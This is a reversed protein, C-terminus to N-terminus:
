NRLKQLEMEYLPLEAKRNEPVNEIALQWYMIAKKRDALATYARALGVNPTFKDGPHTKANYQFVEIAKEKKGGALLIRGYQHIALVPTGPIRIARDMIKEAEDYRALTYLVVAKANLTQFDEVGGIAPDMAKNAWQLAEDLNVKYQANIQAALSWNRYDHGAQSRLENRIRAVYIDGVNAEIKFPIRKEEWQLYAVTSSSLRSDFGYTLWETYPAEQPSVEVRLADEAENYSFSGWSTFNKSFIWIWAADKSPILFLGYTGAPLPQGQVTVDHSFYITTNENAGARWPAAKVGYGQDSLGYPVLNGWIQGRRDEGNVGHVDPSSYTITIEVPGVFQTVRCKQNNGSPPQSLSVQSQASTVIFMLLLIILAKM